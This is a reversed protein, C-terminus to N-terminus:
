RMTANYYVKAIDLGHRVIQLVRQSSINYSRSISRKTEGCIINRYFIDYDRMSLRDKVYELINSVFEKSEIALSYPTSNDILYKLSDSDVYDSYESQSYIGDYYVTNFMLNNYVASFVIKDLRPRKNKMLEYIENPNKDANKRIFFIIDLVTGGSDATLWRNFFLHHRIYTRIVSIAYTSFEGKSSDYRDICEWLKTLAIQRLDESYDGLSNNYKGLATYALNMNDLFFKEKEKQNM